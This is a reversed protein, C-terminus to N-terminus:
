IAGIATALGATALGAVLAANSNKTRLAVVTTAVAGVLTIVADATGAGATHMLGVAALAAFAAPMVYGARRIAAASPQRGRLLAVMSIRFLYCGAGAILVTLWAATASM